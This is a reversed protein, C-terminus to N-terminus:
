NNSSAVQETLKKLKEMWTPPTVVPPKVAPCDRNVRPPIIRARLRWRQCGGEGARRLSADIRRKMEKLTMGSGRGVLAPMETAMDNNTNHGAKYQESM